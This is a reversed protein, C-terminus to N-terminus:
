EIGGKKIHNAIILVLVIINVVLIWLDILGGLVAFGSFLTLFIFFTEVDKYTLYTLVIALGFMIALGFIWNTDNVTM